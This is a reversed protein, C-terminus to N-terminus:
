TQWHLTTIKDDTDNIAGTATAQIFVRDGGRAGFTFVFANWRISEGPFRCSTQSSGVGTVGTELDTLRLSINVVGQADCKGSGIVDLNEGGVFDFVVEAAVVSITGTQSSQASAPDDPRASPSPWPTGRM